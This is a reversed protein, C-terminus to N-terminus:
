LFDFWDQEYNLENKILWAKEYANIEPEKKNRSTATHM